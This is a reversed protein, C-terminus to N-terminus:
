TCVHDFMCTSLELEWVILADLHGVQEITRGESWPLVCQGYWVGAGFYFGSGAISGGGFFFGCGMPTTVKRSKQSAQKDM